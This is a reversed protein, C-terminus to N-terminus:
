EISIIGLITINIYEAYWNFTKNWNSGYTRGSAVYLQDRVASLYFVNMLLLVEM